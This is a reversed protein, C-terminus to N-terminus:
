VMDEWRGQNLWTAPQCTFKGDDKLKYTQRDVQTAAYKKAGAIIEDPTAKLEIEVYTGSDKDLTRTKLGGGTIADWKAKALPKGVRKPYARWFDEFRNAEVEPRMQVVTNM